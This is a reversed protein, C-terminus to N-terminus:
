ATKKNQLIFVTKKAEFCNIHILIVRFFLKFARFIRFILSKEESAFFYKKNRKLARFPHLASRM